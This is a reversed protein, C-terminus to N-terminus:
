LSVSTTISIKPEIRTATTIRASARGIRAPVAM